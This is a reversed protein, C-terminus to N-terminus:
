QNSDRGFAVADTVNNFFEVPRRTPILSVIWNVMSRLTSSEIVISTSGLHGSVLDSPLGPETYNHLKNVLAHFRSLMSAVNGLSVFNAQRADVCISVRTGAKAAEVLTAEYMYEFVPQDREVEFDDKPLMEIIVVNDNTPILRIWGAEVVSM